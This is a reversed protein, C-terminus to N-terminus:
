QISEPSYVDCRVSLSCFRRLKQGMRAFSPKKIPHALHTTHAALQGSVGYISTKQDPVTLSQRGPGFSRKDIPYLGILGSLRNAIQDFRM